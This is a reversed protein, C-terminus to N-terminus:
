VRALYNKTPAFGPHRWPPRSGKVAQGARGRLTAWGGQVDHDLSVRSNQIKMHVRLKLAICLLPPVGGGAGGMFIYKRSRASNLEYNIMEGVKERVWCGGM